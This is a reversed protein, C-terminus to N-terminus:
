KTVQLSQVMKMGNKDEYSAKVEAGPALAKKDVKASAPIMLTTGNDLTISKGAPDVAQVKGKIEAASAVTGVALLAVLVGLAVAKLMTM